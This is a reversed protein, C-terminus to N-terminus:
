LLTMDCLSHRSFNYEIRGSEIRSINLLDEVLVILRENSEYIKGLTEMLRPDAEGYTGEQAM